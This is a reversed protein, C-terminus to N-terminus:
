LIRIKPCPITQHSEDVEQFLRVEIDAFELSLGVLPNSQYISFRRIKYKTKGVKLIILTDKVTKEDFEDSDVVAVCEGISFKPKVARHIHRNVYDSVTEADLTLVLFALVLSTILAFGALIKGNLLRSRVMNESLNKLKKM